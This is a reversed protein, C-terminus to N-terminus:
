SFDHHVLELDKGTKLKIVPSPLYFHYPINQFGCSLILTESLDPINTDIDQKKSPTCRVVQDVKAALQLRGIYALNLILM